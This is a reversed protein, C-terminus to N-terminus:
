RLTESPALSRLRSSELRQALDTEAATRTVPAPSISTAAEGEVHLHRGAVDPPERHALKRGPRCAREAAVHESVSGAGNLAVMVTPGVAESTGPM